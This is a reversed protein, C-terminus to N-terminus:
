ETAEDVRQSPRGVFPLRRFRRNDLFAGVTDAQHGDVFRFPELKGNHYERVDGRLDRRNLRRPMDVGRAAQAGQPDASPRRAVEQQWAISCARSHSSPM